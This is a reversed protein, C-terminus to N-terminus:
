KAETTPIPSNSELKKQKPKAILYHVDYISGLYLLIVPAALYMHWDHFPLISHLFIMLPNIENKGCISLMYHVQILDGMYDRVDNQVFYRNLGVNCFYVLTYLVLPIGMTTAIYKAKLEIYGFRVLLIPLGFEIVHPFYYWFFTWSFIDFNAAGNNVILAIFAGLSWLLLCNGLVKNKSLVVIPLIM